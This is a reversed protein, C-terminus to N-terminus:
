LEASRFRSCRVVELVGTLEKQAKFFLKHLALAVECSLTNPHPSWGPDISAVSAIGTESNCKGVASVSRLSQTGGKVRKSPIGDDSM